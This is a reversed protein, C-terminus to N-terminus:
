LSYMAQGLEEPTPVIHQPRLRVLGAPPSPDFPNVCSSHRGFPRHWFRTICFPAMPMEYTELCAFLYPLITSIQAKLHHNSKQVSALMAPPFQRLIHPAYLFENPLVGKVGHVAPLFSLAWHHQPALLSQQVVPMPITVNGCIKRAPSEDLEEMDVDADVAEDEDEDEDETEDEVEADDELADGDADLVAAALLLDPIDPPAIAPIAIPTTAPIASSAAAM